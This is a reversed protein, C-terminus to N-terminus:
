SKLQWWTFLSAVRLYYFEDSSLAKHIQILLVSWNGGLCQLWSVRHALGVFTSKRSAELKHNNGSSIFYDAMWDM